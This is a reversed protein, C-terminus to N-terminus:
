SALSGYKEKGFVNPVTLAVISIAAISSGAATSAETGSPRGSPWKKPRNESKEPGRKSLKETGFARHLEVWWMKKVFKQALESGLGSIRGM